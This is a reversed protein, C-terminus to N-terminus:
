LVAVVMIQDEVPAVEQVAVAPAPNEVPPAVDPESAEEASVELVVKEMEQVPLPPVPVPLTVTFTLAGGPGVAVIEAEGL